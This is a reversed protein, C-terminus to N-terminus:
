AISRTSATFTVGAYTPYNPNDFCSEKEMLYNVIVEEVTTNEAEAIAKLGNYLKNVIMIEQVVFGDMQTSKTKYFASENNM